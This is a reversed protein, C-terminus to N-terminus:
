KWYQQIEGPCGPKLRDQLHDCCPPQCWSIGQNEEVFQCFLKIKCGSTYGWSFLYFSIIDERYFFYIFIFKKLALFHNLKFSVCHNVYSLFAVKQTYLGKKIGKILQELMIDRDLDHETM